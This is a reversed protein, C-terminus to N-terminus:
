SDLNWVILSNLSGERINIPDPIAGCTFDENLSSNIRVNTSTLEGVLLERLDNVDDLAVIDHNLAVQASLLLTVELTQSLDLAITADAVASTKGNSTLAGLGIGAGTLATAPCDTHDAIWIRLLTLDLSEGVRL